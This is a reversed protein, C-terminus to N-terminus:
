CAIFVNVKAWGELMKFKSVAIAFTAACVQYDFINGDSDNRNKTQSLHPIEFISGCFIDCSVTQAAIAADLCGTKGNALRQKDM